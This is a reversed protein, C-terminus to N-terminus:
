RLRSDNYVMSSLMPRQFDWSNAPVVLRDEGGNNLFTAYDPVPIIGMEHVFYVAQGSKIWTGWPHSASATRVIYGTDYLGSNSSYTVQGFSFGLGEFAQRNAFGTKSNKYVIYVTGNEQILTGNRYTSTGQVCGGYQCSATLTFQQTVNRGYNDSVRITFTGSGNVVPTGYLQGSSSLSLGSPLSGSQISYYYPATGGSVPLQYSYYQGTYLPPLVSSTFYLNGSGTNGSVTVYLSQCASTGTYCLTMTTSGSQNAYVYISNGSVSASAVYSNTNTSLYLTGYVTQNTYATVTQSQGPTLNLNSQSLWFSGGSSYGSVTVYVYGCTGSNQCVSITASGNTLGTLFLQSGTVYASVVSPNSNSSIYYSVGVYGTSNYINVTSSQNQNLTVSSQSFSISGTGSGGSVTVSLTACGYSNGSSCVSITSYGNTLGQLNVTTGSISASVVSNNSNSSIYVSNSPAYAQVSAWQGVSMSLSSQSLTVTQNNCNYYGCNNCYNNYYNCNSNSGNPYVQVTSSQQGNVTVYMEVPSNSYDSGLSFVQTFYGSQDTQGFNTVTTWLQTNQRRYLTIQSYSDGYVNMRVNDGSGERAVSLTPSMALAPVAFALVMTAVLGFVVSKIFTKM